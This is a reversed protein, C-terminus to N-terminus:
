VEKILEYLKDVDQENLTLTGLMPVNFTVSSKKAQKKLERYIKDVNIKENEDIVNLMKVVENSKLKNFLDTSNSLALGIGGGVVWKQWGNINAIIETDIYKTIGNLVKSYEYM